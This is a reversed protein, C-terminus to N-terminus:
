FHFTATTPLQNRHDLPQETCAPRLVGHGLRRLRTGPRAYPPQSGGPGAAGDIGTVDGDTTPPLAGGDNYHGFPDVYSVTYTGAPQNYATSFTTCGSSAAQPGATELWWAVREIQDNGLDSPLPISRTAPPISPEAM